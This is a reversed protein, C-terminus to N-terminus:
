RRLHPRVVELIKRVDDDGFGARRLQKGVIVLRVRKEDSEAAEAEPPLRNLEAELQARRLEAHEETCRGLGVTKPRKPNGYRLAYTVGKKRKRRWLQVTVWKEIDSMVTREATRCYTKVIRCHPNCYPFPM